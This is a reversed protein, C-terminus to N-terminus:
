YDIIRLNIQYDSYFIVKSIFLTIEYQGGNYTSTPFIASGIAFKNNTQVFGPCLLDYCGTQNYGDAQL